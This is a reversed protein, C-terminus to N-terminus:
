KLPNEFESGSASVILNPSANTNTEAMKAYKYWTTTLQQEFMISGCISPEWGRGLRLIKDVALYLNETALANFNFKLESVTIM